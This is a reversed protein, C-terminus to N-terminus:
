AGARDVVAYAADIEQPSLGAREAADRLLAEDEQGPFERAAWILSVAREGITAGAVKRVAEDIDM